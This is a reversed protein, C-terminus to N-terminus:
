NPATMPALINSLMRTYEERSWINLHTPSSFWSMPFHPPTAIINNTPISLLEPLHRVANDYGTQSSSNFMTDPVPSIIIFVNDPGFRPVTEALKNAADGFQSSIEYTYPAYNSYPNDNMKEVMDAFSSYELGRIPDIASSQDKVIQRFKQRGGYYIGYSQPMPFYILRELFQSEIFKISTPFIANINETKIQHGGDAVFDVWSDWNKERQYQVPHLVIIIKGIEASKETLVNHLMLAYGAPGLYGISCLSDIRRGPLYKRLLPIDIGMLCSSDGIFLIDQAGLQRSRQLQEFVPIDASDVNFMRRYEAEPLLTRLYYTGGILAAMLFLPTVLEYALLRLSRSLMHASEIWPSVKRWM